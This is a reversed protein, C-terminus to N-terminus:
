KANLRTSEGGFSPSQGLLPDSSPITSACTTGVYVAIVSHSQSPPAVSLRWTKPDQRAIIAIMHEHNEKSSM